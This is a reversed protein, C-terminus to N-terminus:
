CSYGYGYHIRKTIKKGSVEEGKEKVISEWKGKIYQSNYVIGRGMGVTKFSTKKVMELFMLIINKILAFLM